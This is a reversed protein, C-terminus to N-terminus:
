AQFSLSSQVTGKYNKSLGGQQDTYFWVAEGAQHTRTLSHTLPRQALGATDNNYNEYNIAIIITNWM